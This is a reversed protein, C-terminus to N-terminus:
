FRGIERLEQERERKLKAINAPNMPSEQWKKARAKKESPTFGRRRYKHPSSGVERYKYPIFTDFMIMVPALAFLIVVLGAPAFLLYLFIQLLM